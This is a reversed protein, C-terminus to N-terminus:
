GEEGKLEGELVSAPIKTSVRIKETCISQHLMNLYYVLLKGRCCYSKRSILSPQREMTLM